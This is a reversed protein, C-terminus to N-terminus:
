KHVHHNGKKKIIGFANPTQVESSIASAIRNLLDNIDKQIDKEIQMYEKVEEKSYLIEKSLSLAKARNSYSKHYMGGQEMIEEYRNKSQNFDEIEKEYKKDIKLKLTRLKTIQHKEKIEDLAQYAQMIIDTM